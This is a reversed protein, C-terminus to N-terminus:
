IYNYYIAIYSYILMSILKSIFYYNSYNNLTYGSLSHTNTLITDWFEAAM